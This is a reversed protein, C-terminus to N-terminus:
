KIKYEDQTNHAWHQWHRQITLEKNSRWNYRVNMKDSIIQSNNWYWTCIAVPVAGRGLTVSVTTSEYGGRSVANTSTEKWNTSRHSVARSTGPDFVMSPSLTRYLQLPLLSNVICLCQCCQACLVCSSYLFFYVVCFVFFILLVSGVLIRPHVWTSTFPLCNKGRILCWWKVWIILLHQVGSYWVVLFLM